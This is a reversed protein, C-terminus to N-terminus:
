CVYVNNQANLFIYLYMKKLAPGIYSRPIRGISVGPRVSLISASIICIFYFYHQPPNNRYAILHLYLVDNYFM